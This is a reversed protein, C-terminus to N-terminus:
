RKWGSHYYTEGRTIMLPWSDPQKEESPFYGKTNLYPQNWQQRPEKRQEKRSKLSDEETPCIRQCLSLSQHSSYSGYNKLLVSVLTQTMQQAEKTPKQVVEQIVEELQCLKSDEEPEGRSVLLLVLRSLHDALNNLKGTIHEINVEVGTGTLFDVFKLWRVRSPKNQASKNYFSIIAQCDTRLTIKKKDLYHIKFAELSNIAAELEADISSKLNAFKGSAYACIREDKQPDMESPKWKCIGGWGEMCGDTEIVVHCREPALQLPPLNQVIKKIKRILEWDSDKMRKDGHPSTKEYLPGLLPGMNPIFSRAYNLVGLWSRLGKKDAFQKQDFDVIKSIINPQLQIRGRDIIVGLFEITPSAVKMKTPSLVLGNKQIIQILKELHKAHEEISRSFVLIDDIYVAIFDETGKFCFDMKRQFIAPANKLGFPMVLWEYLESPATFATWEISEEDMLIQHFGSKLDFKSFVKAEGIKKLITNIGPLSYQDKHTNDNLSRYNFVMREKGKVEKGDKDISTGSAVIMAMTRHRSKSPRIVQLDLLEKIHKQFSQIMAPTVHKLPKDQITLSPNIIDLKCKIGNKAWHQLPNLGVFGEKALSELIGGFKMRFAELTKGENYHVMEKILFYEETVENLQIIETSQSTEITTVNKYFTITNGEIRLGGQMSRIFNCGILLQIGDQQNMDLAYILPIRFRNEGIKMEGNKIRKCADQQSNVGKFNVKYNLQELAEKPIAQLNCCCSTAGTDLIGNLNFLAVGPVNFEVRLNYLRNIIKRPGREQIKFAEELLKMSEQPEEMSIGKGKRAKEQQLFEEFAEYFQVPDEKQAKDKWYAVEEKLRDVEGQLYDVHILLEQLLKERPQYSRRDVPEPKIKEKLYFSSCMPCATLKCLPCHIRMRKNTEIKCFFCRIYKAELIEENKQWPHKCDAQEQSVMVLPRWGGETGLMMLASETSKVELSLEGESMSFIGDSDEENLDVSIVDWDDPLDLNDLTAKRIMNGNTSRCERAFHGERGCIYCKCKRVAQARAPKNPKKKFARIHTDHPKGKYTKAKRLGFKYPKNYYGPIPVEKCFSLDKLERQFHAEKCCEALYQYAFHIKPMVAVDVGPHKRQWEKEMKEGIVPPMKQYLKTTLDASVFMRGSKAALIKFQNLYQFIDASKECTLRELDKFARDQEVTSGQAPDELLFVRRIQSLVNQSDDAINILQEYEDTYYMRWQIWTKKETEGLLNEIFQVKSKNNEFTRENLTNITVTEWRSIVDEYLGINDPLVLLAGDKIQASPLTWQQNNWARFRPPRVGQGIQISPGADDRRIATAPPYSAPGMIPETPLRYPTRASTAGSSGTGEMLAWEKLTKQLKPYDTEQNEPESEGSNPNKPSDEGGREAAFPNAWEINFESSGETPVDDFIPRGGDNPEEDFIPPGHFAKFGFAEYMAWPDEEKVTTEEETMMAALEEEDSYTERDAEDVQIPEPQRQSTYRKFSVSVDGNLRNRFSVTRPVRVSNNQKQSPRIHWPLGELERISRPQGQIVQIGNSQLYDTVNQVKYQFGAYSTNTLRGILSRTVLLNSEGDQWNEYGHTQIVLEFHDRFDHISLMMDPVMYVLQTGTSLDVEMTGIIGNDDTWRTDRLVILANVGANRRHLAYIRVFIIGLHIHQLGSERLRQYSQDNIFPIERQEDGTVLMREESYHQYVQHQVTQNDGRNYLVEAPVQDARRQQSIRIQEEPNLYSEMTRNFRRGTLRGFRRQLNYRRRQSTRYDRIQDEQNAVGSASISAEPARVPDLVTETRSM